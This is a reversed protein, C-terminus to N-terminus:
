ENGNIVEEKENAVIDKKLKWNSSFGYNLKIVKYLYYYYFISPEDLKEEKFMYVEFKRDKEELKNILQKMQYLSLGNQSISFKKTYSFRNTSYENWKCFLKGDGKKNNYVIVYPRLRSMITSTKVLQGSEWM